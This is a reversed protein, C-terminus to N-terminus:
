VGEHPSCTPVIRWSASLVCNTLVCTVSPAAPDYLARHPRRPHLSSASPARPGYPALAGLSPPPLAWAPPPPLAGMCPPPPLLGMCLFAVSRGHLPPRCLAWALPLRCCAWASPPSLAGLPRSERPAAVYVGGPGQEKVEGGPPAHAEVSAPEPRPGSTSRQPTPCAGYLLCRTALVTYRM